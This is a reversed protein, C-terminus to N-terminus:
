PPMVEFRYGVGWVTHIFRYGRRELKLRLRNIHTHLTQHDTGGPYGWVRELLADRALVDGPREALAWLLDFEKPTLQVHEGAVTVSRRRRDVTLGPFTLTDGVTAPGLGAAGVPPAQAAAAEAGPGTARKLWVRVRALLEQISFPKTIYDDAGMDFGRLKDQEGGLATIMLVPLEPRRARVQGLVEWGDLKPLMLDLIVLDVPGAVAHALGSAGDTVWTCQYGDKRLYLTILEGITPDDEILLVHASM